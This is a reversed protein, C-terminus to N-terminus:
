AKAIDNLMASLSTYGALKADAAACTAASALGTNQALFVIYTAINKAFNLRGEDSITYFRASVTVRPRTIASPPSRRAAM